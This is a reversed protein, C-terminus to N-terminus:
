KQSNYYFRLAEIFQKESMKIEENVNLMTSLDLSTLPAESKNNYITYAIEQHFVHSEESLVDLDIKEAQSDSLIYLSIQTSSFMTKAAFQLKKFYTNFWNNSQLDFTRIDSDIDKLAKASYVALRIAKMLRDIQESVGMSSGNEDEIKIKLAYHVIEGELQKIAMYYEINDAYLLHKPVSPIGVFSTNKSLQIHLFRCNLQLVLYLLYQTEKTLAEIAAGTIDVSVNNIYQTLNHNHKKIRKELLASFKRIFPMFVLLGFLNFLSHFAVLTYLPDSIGLIKVLELLAHLFVFTLVDVCVNFSVHAMALQRKVISGQLSGLIVTSTTGLDAGIVLAAAEPLTIMGAYLASLTLMMVASSSQIIATLLTGALLYIILPYGGLIKIDLQTTINSTSDKMFDLGLLLLALGFVFLSFSRWKGKFIGLCLGAVGLIPYIYQSMDLKFGLTAVVWGTFTTGLNSGIVIGIANVLPIIGIGVFALVILGVLSSSQVVTTAITGTLVSRLPSRSSRSLIQQFRKGSLKKLAYELQSMGFLFLSLGALLKWVDIYENM